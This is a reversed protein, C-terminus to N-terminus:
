EISSKLFELFKTATQKDKHEVMLRLVPETGSSRIIIRAGLDEFKDILTKTNENLEFNKNMKLNEQAQFYETYGATLEKLSKKTTGLINMLIIANLVGDGTNSFQKLIIHGSNEGGLSANTESMKKYVMKDGVQAREFKIKRKTLAKELGMNSYITGVLTNGENQFFQSFIFMIKDGDYIEGHEDVALLRDADGDFAFGIKQEQLCISRLFEIHTCGANLNINKGTYLHNIIKATPFVLKAIDSAGGFACDIVCPLNHKKISRLFNIYDAKLNEKNKFLAFDTKFEFKKDMFRELELETQESIKEGASNFFKIGNYEHPNHSASIMMGLPYAFKRTLYALCPSSCVGVNHVEVGRALLTTQMLSLIYDSSIRSDNGVLLVPKLKHTKYFKVLARSLKKITSKTLTEGVVGRIGDTGFYKM